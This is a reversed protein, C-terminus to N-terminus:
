GKVKLNMINDDPETLINGATKNFNPDLQKNLKRFPSM